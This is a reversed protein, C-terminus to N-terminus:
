GLQQLRHLNQLHVGLFQQLIQSPESLFIGEQFLLVGVGEAASVLLQALPGAPDVAAHVAGREGVSLASRRLPSGHVPVQLTQGDKQAVLQLPLPQRPGQQGQGFIHGLQHVLIPIQVGSIQLAQPLQIQRLGQDPLGQLDKLGKVRCAYPGSVEGFAQQELQGPPFVDGRRGHVDGGPKQRLQSSLVVTGDGPFQPQGRRLDLGRFLDDGRQIGVGAPGKLRHFRCGIHARVHENYFQLSRQGNDEVFVIQWFDGDAGVVGPKQLIGVLLLGPIVEAFLHLLGFPKQAAQVAPAARQAAAGGGNQVSLAGEEGPLGPFQSRHAQQGQRFRQGQM